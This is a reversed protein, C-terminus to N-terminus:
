GYQCSRERRSASGIQRHTRFTKSAPAFIKVEVLLRDLRPCRDGGAPRGKGRAALGNPARAGLRGPAPEEAVVVAAQREAVHPASAAEVAKGRAADVAIAAGFRHKGEMEGM